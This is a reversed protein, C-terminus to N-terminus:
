KKHDSIFQISSSRYWLLAVVGTLFNGAAIGFFFGVTNWFHSGLYVLPVLLLFLRMINIATSHFPRNLANCSASILQSIGHFAFGFPVIWFFQKIFDQILTDDAFIWAISGSLLALAGWTTTGWIIAFRISFKNAQIIRDIKGAGYNQGIFPILVSAIAMIGIMAIAEIRTGVGFAAVTAEGLDAAIRTLFANSIPFLLQTLM